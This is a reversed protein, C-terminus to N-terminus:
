YKTKVVATAEEATRVPLRGIAMQPMGDNNFDVMWDDSATEM